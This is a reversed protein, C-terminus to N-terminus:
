QPRAFPSDSWEQLTELPVNKGVHEKAKENNGADEILLEPKAMKKLTAGILGAKGIASGFSEVAPAPISLIISCNPNSCRFYYRKWGGKGWWKMALEWKSPSKCFPCKPLNQSVWRGARDNPNPIEFKL